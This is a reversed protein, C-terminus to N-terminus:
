RSSPVGGPLGVKRLSRLPTWMLSCPFCKAEIAESRMTKTFTRMKTRLSGPEKTSRENSKRLAAGLLELQHM